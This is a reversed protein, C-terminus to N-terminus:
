WDMQSRSEWGKERLRQGKITQAGGTSKMTNLIENMADRGVAIKSGDQSTQKNESLYGKLWGFLAGPGGIPGCEKQPNWSIGVL